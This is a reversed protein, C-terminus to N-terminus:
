ISKGSGASRKYFIRLRHARDKIKRSSVVMVWVVAASSKGV